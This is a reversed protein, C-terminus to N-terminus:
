AADGRPGDVFRVNFLDTNQLRRQLRRLRARRQRREIRLALALGICWGGGAAGAMALAAVLPSVTAGLALLVMCCIALAITAWRTPLTM